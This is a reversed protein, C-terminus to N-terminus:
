TYGARERGYKREGREVGGGGGGGTCVAQLLDGGERYFIFVLKTCTGM